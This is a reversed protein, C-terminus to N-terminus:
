REAPTGGQSNVMASALQLLNVTGLPEGAPGVVALGADPVGALVRIADEITTGAAIAVGNIPVDQKLSPMVAEVHVVRGRNVEKVFSAVRQDQAADRGRVQM